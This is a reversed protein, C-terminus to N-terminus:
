RGPPAADARTAEELLIWSRSDVPIWDHIALGNLEGGTSILCRFTMRGIGPRDWVIPYNWRIKYRHHAPADEWIKGLRAVYRPDGKLFHELVAAFYPSPAEVQEQTRHFTKFMRAIAAMAEDWNACRDAFRPLSAISFLNREVPDLFEKTMDVSWVAQAAANASMVEGRESAIFAPWGYAAVEAAAEEPTLSWEDIDQPRMEVGDPAFGAAFLIRNRWGRDLQLAGIIQSLHEKRPHRRGGEYGRLAGVSIGAREALQEQTLKLRKRADRLQERWNTDTSDRQM